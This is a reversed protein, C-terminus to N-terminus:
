RNLAPAANSPWCPCCRSAWAVHRAPPNRPLPPLGVGDDMVEVCAQGPAPVSLRVGISGSAGNPVAHKISNTALESVLLGCPIARALDLRLTSEPAHVQLRSPSGVGLHTDRLLSALSRLYFGLDVASFDAREYLLQHMLAMSSVRSQSDSLAAQVAPEAHRSQLNLLSSIVQLNNKVRRHVENLLVTKKQLAGELLRQAARRETVDQITALM